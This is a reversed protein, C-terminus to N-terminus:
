NILPNEKYVQHEKEHFLSNKEEIIINLEMEQKLDNEVKKELSLSAKSVFPCWNQAESKKKNNYDFDDDRFDALNNSKNKLRHIFM